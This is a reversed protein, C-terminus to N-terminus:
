KRKKASGEGPWTFAECSSGTTCVFNPLMRPIALTLGILHVYLLVFELRLVLSCATIEDIVTVMARIMTFDITRGEQLALTCKASSNKRM